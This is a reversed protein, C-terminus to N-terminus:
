QAALFDKQPTPEARETRLGEEKGLHMDLVTYGENLRRWFIESAKKKRFHAFGQQLV